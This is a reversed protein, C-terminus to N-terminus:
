KREHEHRGPAEILQGAMEDAERALGELMIRSAETEAQAALYRYHIAKNRWGEIEDLITMECSRGLPEITASAGYDGRMPPMVVQDTRVREPTM